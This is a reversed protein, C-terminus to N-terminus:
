TAKAATKVMATPVCHAVASLQNNAEAVIEPASKEPGDITMHADIPLIVDYGLAAAAECAATICYETQMGTICLRGVNHAQLWAHLRGDEFSSLVNKELHFAPERDRLVQALQWGASGRDLISGADTWHQVFIVPWSQADAWELLEAIRGTVQEIAAPPAADCLAQQLDIVILATQQAPSRHQDTLMLQSVRRQV